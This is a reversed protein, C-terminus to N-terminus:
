SSGFVAAAEVLATRTSVANLAILHIMQTVSTCCDSLIKVSYKDAAKSIATHTVCNQTMMGCILLEEVGLGALTQELTTRHFSDAFAKTVVIGDSAAALIRPHVDVGSTGENFFPAIGKTADAIHQVIIVPINGARAKGIAIEINALTVDTNWLPFKGDPFYDNQLDIVILAQKTMNFEM